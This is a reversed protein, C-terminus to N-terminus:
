DYKPFRTLCIKGSFHFLEGAPLHSSQNYIFVACCVWWCMTLFDGSQKRFLVLWQLSPVSGDYISRWLNSNFFELSVLCSLFKWPSSWAPTGSLVACFMLPALIVKSSPFVRVYHQWIILPIQSGTQFSPIRQTTSLPYINQLFLISM